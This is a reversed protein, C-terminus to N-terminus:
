FKPRAHTSKFIAVKKHKAERAACFNAYKIDHLNTMEEHTATPMADVITKRDADLEEIYEDIDKYSSLSKLKTSYYNDLETETKELINNM